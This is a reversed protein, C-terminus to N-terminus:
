LRCRARIYGCLEIIRIHACTRACTRAHTRAHVCQMCVCTLTHLHAREYEPCCDTCSEQSASFLVCVFNFILILFMGHRPPSSQSSHQVLACFVFYFSIFFFIFMGHRPPSSQSSSQVLACFVGCRAIPLLRSVTGSGTVVDGSPSSPPSPISSVNNYIIYIYIYIYMYVYIYIGRSPALHYTTIYIYM